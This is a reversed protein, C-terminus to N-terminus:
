RCRGTSSGSSTLRCVTSAPGWPGAERVGESDKLLAGKFFMLALFGKMEQLIAINGGEYSYCPKGWKIEEILGCSLLIPRLAAMEDPWKDSRRIYTDIEPNM